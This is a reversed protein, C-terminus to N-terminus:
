EVAEGTYVTGALKGTFQEWWHPSLCIERHARSSCRVLPSAKSAKAAESLIHMRIKAGKRSPSHSKMFTPTKFCWPLICESPLIKTLCGNVKLSHNMKENEQCFGEHSLLKYYRHFIDTKIHKPTTKQLNNKPTPTVFLLFTSVPEWNTVWAISSNVVEGLGTQVGLMRLEPIASTLWWAWSEGWEGCQAWWSEM